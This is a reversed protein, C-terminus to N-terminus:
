TLIAYIVSVFADSLIILRSNGSVEFYYVNNFMINIFMYIAYICSMGFGM